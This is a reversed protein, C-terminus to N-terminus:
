LYNQVGFTQDWTKIVENQATSKVLVETFTNISTYSSLFKSIVMSLPIGFNSISEDFTMEISSGMAFGQWTQSTIRKNKRECKVDAIAHVEGVISSRTVNAFINVVEKIKKIGDSNFSISNLSLASILKWLVEGSKISSRQITPRELCYISKAPASVEIKLMANAPIQEAVHRNTCLTHAYIIKDAPIQPNFNIDVFSLHIDEGLANALYSKKRKSTWFFQDDSESTAIPHNCSFFEPVEIEDNKKTDVVVMKNISYIENTHYRRYDPILRQEVQKHDLRLPETVKPFLNVAPVSSLLFNKTSLQMSVDNRMPIYFTSEGRIDATKPITIEFGLFKEAFSFYEHLLRFGNFVNSPYPFLSENDELGINTIQPIFSFQKDKYFLIKEECMFISSFIKGRLLANANIYFRLKEPTQSGAHGNYKVSINLFFTSRAYYTPIHEKQVIGVNTIEIPWLRLDHSTSFSCLEGSHSTAYLMTNKPVLFGPSRSARPIDIDFNVMVCSPTPLMLPECLVNLLASAIEPFQDDIQKQLKGALFAFSEILREVHPDSSESASLDLRRAIKPFKAAFETGASRLHSLEYQYYESLIDIENQPM